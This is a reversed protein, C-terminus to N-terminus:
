RRPMTAGARQVNAPGDSTRTALDYSQYALGRRSFAYKAMDDTMKIIEVRNFQMKMSIKQAPWEFVVLEPWVTGTQSDRQVRRITAQCLVTGKADRLVHAIVQPTPPTAQNRNFVTVKYIPQGQPSTTTEILEYYNARPPAKLEYRKNPDYKSLGLAAVVLDPQFPFPIKTGRALAEYSCHFLYPPENKSIWYWFEDNNSGIDVAPQGVLKAQLRFNRPKQCLMMGGVGVPQGNAKADIDLNQCRMAEEPRLRDAERNLYGILDEVKPAVASSPPNLDRKHPLNNCGLAVLIVVVAAAAIISRM